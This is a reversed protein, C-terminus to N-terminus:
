QQEIFTSNIDQTGELKFEEDQEGYNRDAEDGRDQSLGSLAEAGTDMARSEQSVAEAAM